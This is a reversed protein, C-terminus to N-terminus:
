QGCKRNHLTRWVKKCIACIFYESCYQEHLKRMKALDWNKFYESYLTDNSAIRHILEALEKPTYNNAYILSTNAPVLDFVAKDGYFIPISRTLYGHYIKETIYDDEVTNEYALLFKYPNKNLFNLKEQEFPGHRTKWFQGPTNKLCKGWQDVYVYKMLETFNSVRWKFKCNSVFGAVLKERGVPVDPQGMEALRLALNGECLFPVPITSDRRYSVKIDYQDPPPFHCHEGNESELTYVVVIQDGFVRKYNLKTYGGYYFIADSSPNNHNFVCRGGGPLPDCKYSRDIFGQYQEGFYRKTVEKFADMYVTINKNYTCQTQATTITNESNAFNNAKSNALATEILRNSQSANLIIQLATTKEVDIFKTLQVTQLQWFIFIGFLAILIFIGVYRLMSAHMRLNIYCHLVAPTHM